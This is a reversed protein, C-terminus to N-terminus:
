FQLSGQRWIDNYDICLCCVCIAINIEIINFTKIILNSGQIGFALVILLYADLLILKLTIKLWEFLIFGIIKSLLCFKYFYNFSILSLNVAIVRSLM